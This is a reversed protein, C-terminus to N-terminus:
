QCVAPIEPGVRAFGHSKSLKHRQAEASMSSHPFPDKRSSIRDNATPGRM